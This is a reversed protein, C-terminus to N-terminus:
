FITIAIWKKVTASTQASELISKDFQLVIGRHGDAYHSWMLIDDHIESLCLVGLESNVAICAELFPKVIDSEFSKNQLISVVRTETMAGLQADSLKVGFKSLSAPFAKRFHCRLDDESFNTVSFPPKCDFPDNFQTPSAFYLECDTFIRALGKSRMSRYRYLKM